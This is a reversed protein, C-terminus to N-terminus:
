WKSKRAIREHWATVMSQARKREDETAEDYVEHFREVIAQENKPDAFEQALMYWMLGRSRNKRVGLGGWYVTGLRAQARAHFKESALNLWRLGKQTLKKKLYLRGLSYQADRHGYHAGVLKYIEIAKRPDAKIGVKKLGREYYRAVQYLAEVTIRTKRTYRGVDRHQAAALKYFRFAKGHDAKVGRGKRYINALQWLAFLDGKKALADWKGVAEDVNGSEFFEKGEQYAEIDAEPTPTSDRFLNSAKPAFSHFVGPDASYGGDSAGTDAFPDAQGGEGMPISQDFAHVRVDAAVFALVAVAGWATARGTATILGCVAFFRKLIPNWM